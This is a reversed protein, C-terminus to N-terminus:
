LTDLNLNTGIKKKTQKIYLKQCKGMKKGMEFDRNESFKNITEWQKQKERKNVDKVVIKAYLNTIRIYLNHLIFHVSGEYFSSDMDGSTQKVM